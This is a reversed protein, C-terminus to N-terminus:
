ARQIILRHTKGTGRATPLRRAIEVLHPAAEWARNMLRAFAVLDDHAAQLRRGRDLLEVLREPSLWLQRAAQEIRNPAAAETM